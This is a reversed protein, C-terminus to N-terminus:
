WNKLFLLFLQILIKEKVIDKRKVQGKSLQVVYSVVKRQSRM